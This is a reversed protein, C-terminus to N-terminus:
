APRYVKLGARHELDLEEVDRLGVRGGLPAAADAHRHAPEARDGEHEGVVRRRDLRLVAIRHRRLQHLVALDIRRVSLALGTRVPPAPFVTSRVSTGTAWGSAAAAAGPGAASAPVQASASM